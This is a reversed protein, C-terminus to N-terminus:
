VGGSRCGGAGQSGSSGDETDEISGVAFDLFHDAAKKDEAGVAVFLRNLKRAVIGKELVASDFDALGVWGTVPALSTRPLQSDPLQDLM